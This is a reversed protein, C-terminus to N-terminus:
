KRAYVVSLIHKDEYLAKAIDACVVAPVGYLVTSVRGEFLSSKDKQLSPNAQVRTWLHRKFEMLILAGTGAGLSHGVIKINFGSDFLHLLALKVCHVDLVATASNFMGMHVKGDIPKKEGNAGALYQYAVSGRNSNIHWDSFSKTGRLVLM